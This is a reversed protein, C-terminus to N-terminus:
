DFRNADDYEDDGVIAEIVVAVVRDDVFALYTTRSPFNTFHSSSSLLRGSMFSEVFCFFILSPVVLVLTFVVVEVFFFLM